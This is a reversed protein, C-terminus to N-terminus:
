HTTTICLIEFYYKATFLRQSGRRITKPHTRWLNSSVLIHYKTGSRPPTDQLYLARRYVVSATKISLDVLNETPMTTKTRSPMRSLCVALRQFCSYYDSDPSPPPFATQETGCVMNRGCCRAFHKKKVSVYMLNLERRASLTQRWTIAVTTSKQAM